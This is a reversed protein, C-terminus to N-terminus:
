AAARHGDPRSAAPLSAAGDRARIVQSTGGLLRVPTGARRAWGPRLPGVLAFVVTAFILGACALSAMARQGAGAMLRTRQWLAWAVAAACLVDLGIMPTLRADTGAGLGHWFAVPWCAYALWHVARWTRYGLRVRLLSTILVALLLDFAVAGLGLWLPRYASSFPVVAAIWGVPAFPDLVTTAVHLAVFAVVLLSLRRHLQSTILRSWGAAQMRATGVVGLVVTATLLLLAVVGTGRTAYWLATM